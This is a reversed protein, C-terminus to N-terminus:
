ATSRVVFTPPAIGLANTRVITQPIVQGTPSSNGSLLMLYGAPPCDVAHRAELTARLLLARVVSSRRVVRM